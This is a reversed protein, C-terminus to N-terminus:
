GPRLGMWLQETVALALRRATAAQTERKDTRDRKDAPGGTRGEALQRDILLMALGHVLSWLTPGLVEGSGSPQGFLAKAPAMLKEFVANAAGALEPHAGRDALEPGFMVRFHEPHRVAFVVYAVGTEQLRRVPDATGRQVAELEASLREFGDEAVAAVLAARDAFHHYPAQHSVGARRAAARLTLGAPGERQLVELAGAILARRLDGHHYRRARRSMKVGDPNVGIKVSDINDRGVGPRDLARDGRDTGLAEPTLWGM